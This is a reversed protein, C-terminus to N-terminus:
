RDEGAAFPVRGQRVAIRGPGPTTFAGIHAAEVVGREALAALLTDLRERGVAILLGGSTQADALILKQVESIAEDWDVHPEVFALNDRTGGPVVGAGAFTWAAGLVPVRDAYVVADVGAGATMERLHGLLGFGTVDTCASVGVEVMAEAADRNLAAMLAIAEQATAEDALGRKVATAIIGTGIPKTLVIQDGPRAAANTLVRKPHVVGTVAMGYKPETDDVTHGGIVSVGAEAAKDLAGQLIRHLVEVPLRNSPFAVINLAFLPRAGMAYIDSLSNAASIAGFDYPDDAIPTFFDVTQVIALDDDLKYVAADDSTEVGVLVAPDTPLHLKALVRELEQPRLKCACGLGHTYHTLKIEGVEALVPAVLPGEPQLRRVAAAVVEVARDIEEATTMRGVSFRVTGMAYELPVQMAQLVTSVDVQDAHCAAGASAAVQEGIEALLTNAEISRFGVSLTNPLREDPHGNLRLLGPTDLERTLGAWLRDRMTRMHAMNRELDRGAIEAAQGLGVIGLVNETGARRNAEHDAGHVFKVLRVGSRIYLAGVGKPAYLKHGAVSLLDVGLEDVRVPIKGVSQAADTHMLAGHRHAITAIAAIPQVTGVENNAHMITVLITEPTIAREVDAPDVMGYEDVPLYTIHYGQSELWRCPELVAPHEIASTIIHSGRERYAAAVGKIATNNSESGGSTFIIEAPRCGLLAAVQARAHEVARRAEVGYPHSSSPNGFHEYLYPLMVEAVRRDIPTTANYDLYIPKSAM